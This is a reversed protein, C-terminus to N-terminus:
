INHKLQTYATNTIETAAQNMKQKLRKELNRKNKPSIIHNWIQTVLQNDSEWPSKRNKTFNDLDPNEKLDHNIAISLFVWLQDHIDLNKLGEKTGEDIPLNLIESHIQTIDKM